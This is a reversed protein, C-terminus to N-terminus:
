VRKRFEYIASRLADWADSYGAIAIEIESDSGESEAQDLYNAAGMFQEAADALFGAHQLASERTYCASGASSEGSADIVSRKRAAKEKATVIKHNMGM